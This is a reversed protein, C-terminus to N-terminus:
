ILIFATQGPNGKKPYKIGALSIFSSWLGNLLQTGLKRDITRETGNAGSHHGLAM